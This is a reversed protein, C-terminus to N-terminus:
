DLHSPVGFEAFLRTDLFFTMGVIRGGSVELSQIAWPEYGGGASPKYQAFGPRGNVSVPLLKSGRCAAGPGVMWATVDDPGQLWLSFPPMNQTVDDALLQVLAQMDYREFAAVYRGLLEEHEADLPDLPTEGLGTEGITARARQLASNVSAVTTDLLSAVEDAKWRLVERLILVARQRAPLHQLAAVFAMRVSDRAVAVDAPDSATLDIRDDPVPTVWTAEAAPEGLSSVVPESPGGFEMPVARRGSQEIMTLCVNTAIRYIWSRVSSRGEFKEWAKWARVMTDQVADEADFSSGLMRYCYGTLERRYKELQEPGGERPDPRETDPRETDVTSEAPALDTM